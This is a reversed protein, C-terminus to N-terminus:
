QENELRWKRAAAVIPPLEAPVVAEEIAMWLPMPVELHEDPPEANLRHTKRRGSGEFKGTAANLERRTPFSLAATLPEVANARTTRRPAPAPTASASGRPKKRKVPAGGPAPTSARSPASDTM